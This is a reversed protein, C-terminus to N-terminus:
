PRQLLERLARLLAAHDTPKGINRAGALVPETALEGMGYASTLVFPVAMDKLAQAVPTIREGRLNVDLVAADPRRQALLALAAAVAPVPGLVAFGADALVDELEMAILVEDEVVLVHPSVPRDRGDGSITGM